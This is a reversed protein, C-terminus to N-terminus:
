LRRGSHGSHPRLRRQDRQHRCEGHACPRRHLQEHRRHGLQHRGPCHRQHGGLHLEAGGKVANWADEWDGRFVATLFHIISKFVDIVTGIIEAIVGGFGTFLAAIFELAAGIGACFLGGIFAYLPLLIEEWLWLLMAGINQVIPLIYGEWLGTLWEGVVALLAGLLEWAVSLWEGLVAFLEGLAAFFASLKDWLPQLHEEWLTTLLAGLQEFLPALTETYLTSLTEALADVFPKLTAEYVASFMECAGNWVQALFDAAAELAAKVEDWHTVLLVLLAIVGAIALTTPSFVGTLLSSVGNIKEGLKTFVGTIGGFKEFAGGISDVVGTVEKAALLAGLATLLAGFLDPHAQAWAGVRELVGALLELAGVVADGTWEALPALVREWLAELSPAAGAVAGGTLTLAGALAELLPPAAQSVTWEGLPKLVNEVGWALGDLAMEGLGRLTDWLESAATRLRQVSDLVGPDIPTVAFDMGEASLFSDKGFLAASCMAAADAVGSVGDIVASFVPALAEIVPAAAAAIAGYLTTLSDSMGQLSAGFASDQEALRGISDSVGKELASYADKVLSAPTFQKLISQVGSVLGDASKKAKKASEECAKGASEVPKAMSQAARSGADTVAQLQPVISQLKKQLQRIFDDLGSLAGTVDMTVKIM